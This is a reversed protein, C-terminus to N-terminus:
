VRLSCDPCACVISVTLDCAVCLVHVGLRMADVNVFRKHMHVGRRACACVCVAKAINM